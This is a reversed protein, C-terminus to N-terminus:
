PQQRTYPAHPDSRPFKRWPKRVCTTALLAYPLMCHTQTPARGSRDEGSSRGQVMCRRAGRDPVLSYDGATDKFAVRQPWAKPRYRVLAGQM